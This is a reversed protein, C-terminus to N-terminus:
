PGPQSVPATTDVTVTASAGARLRTTGPDLKIRIAFRQTVKVWNGTANEAPLLAFSAGSGAAVSGVKGSFTVGPVMDITVTAPQGPLIRPLDTEKFNADVWWESGEVLSFLPQFASVTAGRRLSINAIWGDAPAKIETHALDTMATALRAQAAALADRNSALAARAQSLQAKASNLAAQAQALTARNRDAVAQTIDGRSLLTQDREAQAAATDLGVQASQVGADAATIQAEFSAGAQSATAVQAKAADVAHRYLAPDLKLLVDGAAVRQNEVVNVTTVQGSVQAAMTVINAGVYADQTSPYLTSQRWYWWLGGGIAGLLLLLGVLKLIKM